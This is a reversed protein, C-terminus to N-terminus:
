SAAAPTFLPIWVDDDRNSSWACRCLRLLRGRARGRGPEDDVARRAARRHFGLRHHLPRKGSDVAPPQRHLDRRPGTRQGGGARSDGRRVACAVRAGAPPHLVRLRSLAPPPAGRGRGVDLFFAVDDALRPLLRLVPGNAVMAAHQCLGRARRGNPGGAGPPPPPPPPPPVGGAPWCGARTSWPSPASTSAACTAPPSALAGGCGEVNGANDDLFLVRGPHVPMGAAVSEFIARDPKVLGLEFSLFRFEFPEILPLAEHHACQFRTRTASAVPASAAVAWGRGGAGGGRSRPSLGGLERVRDPVRGAVGAVGLRGGRRGRVRRRPQLLGAEFPAPGLPLGALVDVTGKTAASGAGAGAHPGRRRSPDVRRGPRVPCRRHPARRDGQAFSAPM